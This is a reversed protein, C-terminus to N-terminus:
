PWQIQNLLRELRAAKQPNIQRFWAVRGELHERFRPHQERNQSEPGFRVCNWLIARLRDFQERPPNPHENLVIGCVQQRHGARLVQTKSHRVKFGEAIAVVQVWVRFNALSQAFTRDGSFLLDDAYRTYNAGFQRALGMLRADLRYACLNALAPSTPAGQPLHPQRFRPDLSAGGLATDSPVTNTCLGTLLRAVAEPYGATRFLAMVRQASVSTFFDALDMRMVVNQAAHAETASIVSQGSRFSHAAPHPPIQDLIGQLVCRQLGKLRHKPVELLRMGGSRKPVWRYRYQRLKEQEVHGEWGRVDAFWELEGVRVDLWDALEGPTVIAPVDWTSASGSGTWMVPRPLVLLSRTNRWNGRDVNPFGRTSELFAALDRHCPIPPDLGFRAMALRALKEIRKPGSRSVMRARSTLGELTWPGSLFATALLSALSHPRPM